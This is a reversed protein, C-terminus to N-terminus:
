VLEIGSDEVYYERHFSLIWENALEEEGAKFMREASGNMLKVYARM